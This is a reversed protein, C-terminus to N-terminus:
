EQHMHKRGKELFSQKLLEFGFWGWYIRHFTIKGEAIDMVEIIDVQGGKPTQRPYEWVLRHGNWFFTGDRYWRVLENPRRRVGEEFFRRIEAGRLIGSKADDLIAMALPTELLADPAYLNMLAEVNGNKAFEQWQEYIRQAEAEVHM